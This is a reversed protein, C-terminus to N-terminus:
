ARDATVVAAFTATTQLHPELSTQISLLMQSVLRQGQQVHKERTSAALTAALPTLFNVVTNGSKRFDCIGLERLHRLKRSVTEPKEGVTKSLEINSSSTRLLADVYRVYTPDSLTPVFSDDSRRLAAEAALLQAFSLEGLLFAEAVAGEPKEAHIAALVDPSSAQIVRQVLSTLAEKCEDLNTRKDALLARELSLGIAELLGSAAERKVEEPSLHAWGIQDASM